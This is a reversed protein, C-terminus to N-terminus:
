PQMAGFLSWCTNRTARWANGAASHVMTRILSSDWVFQGGHKRLIRNRMEASLSKLGAKRYIDETRFKKRGPYKKMIERNITELENSLFLGARSFMIINSDLKAGRKLAAGVIQNMKMESSANKQSLISDIEAKLAAEDVGSVDGFGSLAAFADKANASEV